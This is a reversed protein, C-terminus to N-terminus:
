CEEGQSAMAQAVGLREAVGRSVTSKGSGASHQVLYNTGAGREQASAVLRRVCDMQHYRPFIMQREGTKEGRDDLVEIEHIFHEILGLISDKAWIEEWMYATAFKDPPAVPNGAGTGRGAKVVLLSATNTTRGFTYEGLAAVQDSGIM